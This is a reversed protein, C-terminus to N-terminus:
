GMAALVMPSAVILMIPVVMWSAMGLVMGAVILLISAEPAPRRLPVSFRWPRYKVTSSSRSEDQQVSDTLYEEEPSVSCDDHEPNYPVRWIVTICRFATQLHYAMWLCNEDSFAIHCFIYQISCGIELFGM